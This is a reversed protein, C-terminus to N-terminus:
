RAFLEASAQNGQVVSFRIIHIQLEYKQTEAQKYWSVGFTKPAKPKLQKQNGVSLTSDHSHCSRSSVRLQVSLEEPIHDVPSHNRSQCM